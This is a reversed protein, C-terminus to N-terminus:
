ISHGRFHGCESTINMNIAVTDGFRKPVGRSFATTLFQQDNHIDIEEHIVFHKRFCFCRM